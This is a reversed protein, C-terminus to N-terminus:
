RRRLTIVGAILVLLVVPIVGFLLVISTNVSQVNATRDFEYDPEAYANTLDIAMDQQPILEVPGPVTEYSVQDIFPTSPIWEAEVERTTYIVAGNLYDNWVLHLRNGNTVASDPHEGPHLEPWLSEYTSWENEQLYTYRIATINDPGMASTILHLKQDSDVLLSPNGTQGSLENAFISSIYSWTMGSDNSFQYQRGISTAVGNNWVLHVTNEKDTAISPWAITPDNEGSRAVERVILNNFSPADMSANMIIIPNWSRDADHVDWAVHLKGDDAVIAAGNFPATNESGVSWITVPSEWTVGLDTSRSVQVFANNKVYTVYWHDNQKDIAVLPRTSQSDINQTQWSAADLASAVNAKSILLQGNAAWSVVLLGSPSVSLDGIDLPADPTPSILIDIPESWNGDVLQSYLIRNAAQVGPPEPGFWAGWIVHVTGSRDSSIKPNWGVVGTLASLSLPDSWESEISQASARVYFHTLSCLAWMIIIIRIRRIAAHHISTSRGIMQM